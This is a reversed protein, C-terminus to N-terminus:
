QGAAEERYSQLVGPLRELTMKGYFTDDILIVPAIACSGLCNVLELTFLGDATTEGPRIGLERTVGELLMSGGRIHCATGDCLKIVHKGKPTLTFAKYFTAVSYLQSFPCALHKSLAELGERPLFNFQRQMDQMASLAYRPDKPYRDVVAQIDELPIM